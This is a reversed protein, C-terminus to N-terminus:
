NRRRLIFFLGLGAVILLVLGTDSIPQSSLTPGGGLTLSGSPGGGGSSLSDSLPTDTIASLGSAPPTSLMAPLPAFDHALAPTDPSFFTAAPNSNGSSM